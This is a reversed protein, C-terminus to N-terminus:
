FYEVKLIERLYSLVKERFFKKLFYNNKKEPSNLVLLSKSHKVVGM